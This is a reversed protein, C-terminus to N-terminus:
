NCFGRVCTGISLNGNRDPGSYFINPGIRERRQRLYNPNRFTKLKDPGRVEPQPRTRNPEIIKRGSRPIFKESGYTRVCPSVASNGDICAREARAPLAPLLLSAALLPLTLAKM